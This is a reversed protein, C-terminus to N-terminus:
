EGRSLELVQHAQRLFFYKAPTEGWPPLTDAGANSTITGNKDADTATAIRKGNPMEYTGAQTLYIPFM